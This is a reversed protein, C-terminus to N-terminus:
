VRWAQSHPGFGRLCPAHCVVLELVEEEQGEEHAHMSHPRSRALQWGMSAATHVARPTTGGGVRAVLQPPASAAIQRLASGAPVRTAPHAATTTVGINNPRARDPTPVTRPPPTPYPTPHNPSPVSGEPPRAAPRDLFMGYWVM